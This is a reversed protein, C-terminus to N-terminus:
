SQEKYNKLLNKTRCDVCFEDTTKEFWSVRDCRLCNFRFYTTQHVSAPCKDQGVPCRFCPLTDPKNEPCRFTIRSRKRIYKLNWQKCGDPIAIHEFKIEASNPEVQIYLRLNVFERVDSFSYKGSPWRSFGMLNAFTHCYATSWFTTAWESCPTGALVRMRPRTGQRGWRNVDFEATVIQVPVWELRPCGDWPLVPLGNRLRRLNGSLRWALKSLQSDTIEDGSMHMCSDYVTDYPVEGPLTAHVADVFHGFSKGTPQTYVFNRVDNDDEIKRKLKLINAISYRPMKM